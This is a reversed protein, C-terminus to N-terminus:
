LRFFHFCFTTLLNSLLLLLCVVHISAGSVSIGSMLKEIDHTEDENWHKALKETGDVVMRFFVFGMPFKIEFKSDTGLLSGFNV